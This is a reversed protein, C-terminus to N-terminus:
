NREATKTYQEIASELSPLHKEAEPRLESLSESQQINTKLFPAMWAEPTMVGQQHLLKLYFQTRLTTLDEVQEAAKLANGLLNFLFESTVDGEQSVKAVTEVARLAFELRDYNRRLGSFDNILNAEKLTRMKTEGSGQYTFLVFHLPELVGGGFRKRSRLAGRAMFSMKEGHVSIAQLILDAEGYRVKKLIIFKGSQDM